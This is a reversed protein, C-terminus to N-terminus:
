RKETDRFPTQSLFLARLKECDQATRMEGAATAIAHARAALEVAQQFNGREAQAAAFTALFVPNSWRTLACAREAYSTAEYGNRVKDDPNTALLWALNNLAVVDNPNLRLAERYHGAAESVRHIGSLLAAMTVHLDARAPNLRLLESYQALAEEKKSSQSHLYGLRERPDPWRPALLIAKELQAVAENTTHQLEFVRAL